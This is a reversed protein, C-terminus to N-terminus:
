REFYFWWMYELTTPAASASTAAFVTSLIGIALVATLIRRSRIKM